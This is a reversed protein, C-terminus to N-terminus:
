CAIGDQAANGLHRHTRFCKLVRKHGLLRLKAITQIYCTGQATSTKSADPIIVLTSHFRCFLSPLAIKERQSWKSVPLFLTM